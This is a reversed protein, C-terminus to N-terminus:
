QIAYEKKSDLPKIFPIPEHECQRHKYRSLDFKLFREMKHKLEKVDEVWWGENMGEAEVSWLQDNELAFSTSIEMGDEGVAVLEDMEENYHDALFSPTLYRNTPQGVTYYVRKVGYRHMQEVCVPCPRSNRKWIAEQPEIARGGLRVVFLDSEKAREKQEEKTSGELNDLAAMEAHTSMSHPTRCYHNFGKALIRGGRVIVAGHRYKMESLAAEEAALRFFHKIKGCAEVAM